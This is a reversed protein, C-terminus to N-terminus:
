AKEMGATSLAARSQLYGSCHVPNSEHAKWTPQLLAHSCGFAPRGERRRVNLPETM